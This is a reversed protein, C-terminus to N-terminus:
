QQSLLRLKGMAAKLGKVGTLTTVADNMRRRTSKQLDNVYQSYLKPYERPNGENDLHDGFGLQTSRHECM